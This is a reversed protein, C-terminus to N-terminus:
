GIPSTTQEGCRSINSRWIIKDLILHIVRILCIPPYVGPNEPLAEPYLFGLVTRNIGSELVPMQTLRGAPMSLNNYQCDSVM